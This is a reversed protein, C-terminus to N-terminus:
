VGVEPGPEARSTAGAPIDYRGGGDAGLLIAMGEVAADVAVSASRGVTEAIAWVQEDTREPDHHFLLVRRAGARAGLMAAYDTSSHGYPGREALEPTALQADHILV